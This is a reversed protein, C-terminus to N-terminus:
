RGLTTHGSKRHQVPTTTRRKKHSTRKFVHTRRRRHRSGRYTKYSPRHVYVRGKAKARAYPTGPKALLSSSALVLLAWFLLLIRYM